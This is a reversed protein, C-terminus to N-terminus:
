LPNTKRAPGSIDSLSGSVTQLMISAIIMRYPAANGAAYRARVPIFVALLLVGKIFGPNAPMAFINTICDPNDTLAIIGMPIM